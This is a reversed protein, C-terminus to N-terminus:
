EESSTGGGSQNEPEGGGSGEDESDSDKLAKAKDLRRARRTEIDSGEEDSSYIHPRDGKQTALKNKHQKKIANISIGEDDSDMDGYRDPELYGASLGRSAGKERVRKQKSERRVSARM